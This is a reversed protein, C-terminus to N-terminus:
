LIYVASTERLSLELGLRRKATNSGPPGKAYEYAATVLFDSLLQTYDPLTKGDGLISVAQASTPSLSPNQQQLWQFEDSCCSIGKIVHPTKTTQPMTCSAAQAYIRVDKATGMCWHISLPMGVASFWWMFVVVVVTAPRPRILSYKRWM